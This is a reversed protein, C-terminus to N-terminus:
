PEHRGRAWARGIVLRMVRRGLEQGRGRTAQGEPRELRRDEPWVLCWPHEEGCEVAVHATGGCASDDTRVQSGPRFLGVGFTWADLAPTTHRGISFYSPATGCELGASRVVPNRGSAGPYLRAERYKSEHDGSRWAHQGWALSVELPFTDRYVLRGREAGRSATPRADKTFWQPRGHPAAGQVARDRDLECTRAVAAREGRSLM